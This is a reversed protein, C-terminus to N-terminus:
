LNKTIRWSVAYNRLSLLIRCQLLSHQTPVRLWEATVEPSSSVALHFFAVGADTNIIRKMQHTTILDPKFLSEGRLEVVQGNKIFKLTLEDYDTLVPGLKKMWQVGLVVEAGRIPLVYFDVAFSNGQMDLKVNPCVEKCVIENGNGVMVKVSSIPQAQLNLFKAVREQVFNLTSGGDVLVVVQKQAIQGLIRLTEPPASQGSLAHFSIQAAIPDRPDEELGVKNPQSHGSDAQLGIDDDEEAILLFFRSQCKHGRHFKEDCNFCLGKEHRAIM